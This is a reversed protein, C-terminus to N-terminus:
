QSGTSSWLAGGDGCTGGHGQDHPVCVTVTGTCTAGQEDTATFALHYVRGDGGGAREARVRATATGLGTADPTGGAPPEDQAIRDLAITVPGGEPDTVGAISVPVLKHNPPWLTAPSAVAATCVPPQNDAIKM